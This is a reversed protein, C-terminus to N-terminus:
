FNLPPHIGARYRRNGTIGELKSRHECPEDLVRALRKWASTSHNFEGRMSISSVRDDHRNAVGTAAHALLDLPACCLGEKACLRVVCSNAQRDSLDNPPPM